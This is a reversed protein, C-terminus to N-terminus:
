IITLNVGFQRPTIHLLAYGPCLLALLFRLSELLCMNVITDLLLGKDCWTQGTKCVQYVLETGQKVIFRHILIEISTHWPNM